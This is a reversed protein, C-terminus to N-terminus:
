QEGRQEMMADANRYAVIANHKVDEPEGNVCLGILAFCAFLDRLELEDGVVEAPRSIAEFMQKTNM